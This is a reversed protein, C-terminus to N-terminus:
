IPYKLKELKIAKDKKNTWDQWITKMDGPLTEISHRLIEEPSYECCDIYDSKLINMISMIKRNRELKIGEYVASIKEPDLHEFILRIVKLRKELDCRQTDSDMLYNKFTPQSIFIKNRNLLPKIEDYLNPISLGAKYLLLKIEEAQNDLILNYMDKRLMWSPKKLKIMDSGEMM